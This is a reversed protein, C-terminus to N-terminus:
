DELGEVKLLAECSKTRRSKQNANIKPLMFAVLTPVLLLAGLLGLHITHFLVLLTVVEKM